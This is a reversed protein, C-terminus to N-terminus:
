LEFLEEPLINKTVETFIVGFENVPVIASWYGCGSKNWNITDDSILKFAIKDDYSNIECEFELLRGENNTLDQIFRNEYDYGKLVEWSTKNVCYIM